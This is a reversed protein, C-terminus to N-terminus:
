KRGEQAFALNVALDTAELDSCRLGSESQFDALAKSFSKRDAAVADGMEAIDRAQTILSTM